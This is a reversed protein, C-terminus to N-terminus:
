RVAQRCYDSGPSLRTQNVPPPAYTSKLMHGSNYMEEVHAQSHLAMRETQEGGGGSLM